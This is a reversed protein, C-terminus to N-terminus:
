TPGYIIKGYCKNGPIKGKSTEFINFGSGPTHKPFNVPRLLRNEDAIFDLIERQDWFPKRNNHM